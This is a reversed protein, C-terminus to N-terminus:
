LNLDRLIRAVVRSLRERSDKALAWDDDHPSGNVTSLSAEVCFRRAVVATRAGAGVM